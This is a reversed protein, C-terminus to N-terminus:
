NEHSCVAILPHLETNIDCPVCIQIFPDPTVFINVSNWFNKLTYYFEGASWEQVHQTFAPTLLREGYRFRNPTTIIARKALRACQMLFSNYNEIHEVVDISVLLDFSRASLKEIRSMDAYEINLRSRHQIAWTRAKDDAELCLLFRSPDASAEYAFCGTGSGIELIQKDMGVLTAITWNLSVMHPDEFYSYKQLEYEKYEFHIPGAEPNPRYALL